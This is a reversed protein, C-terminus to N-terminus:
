LPLRRMAPDTDALFAAQHPLDRRARLTPALQISSRMGTRLTNLLGLAFTHDEWVLESAYTTIRVM